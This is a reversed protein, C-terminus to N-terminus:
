AARLTEACDLSLFEGIAKALARSIPPPVANGVLRYGDELTVGANTFHFSDPFGQLRACERLTFPRNETPHLFYRPNHFNTLVTPSPENWLPRKFLGSCFMAGKLDYKNELQKLYGLQALAQMDTVDVDLGLLAEIDAVSLPNGNPIDGYRRHRRHRGITELIVQQTPTIEGFVEPIQWTYVSSPAHRVNCLKQGPGIAKFVSEYKEPWNNTVHHDEVSGLTPIDALANHISVAPKLDFTRPPDWLSPMSDDIDSEGNRRPLSHTAIPWVFDPQDARVGVFLVRRRHQPVGYAVADVIRHEVRYGVKTFDEIIARLYAGGFNQSLGDVNEAVFIRPKLTAITERMEMYLVNRQDGQKKPGAKSFGQCPFGGLVVDAYGLTQIESHFELTTVDRVYAFPGLNKRYVAIAAPDNDAAYISDFGAEHFGLDLGGCGTFLSVVSNRALGAKKIMETESYKLAAPM